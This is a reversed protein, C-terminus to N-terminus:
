RFRTKKARNENAYHSIFICISCIMFITFLWYHHGNLLTIISFIFMAINFLLKKCRHWRDMKGYEKFYVHIALYDDVMIPLIAFLIITATNLDNTSILFEATFVILVYYGVQNFYYMDYYNARTGTVDGLRTRDVQRPKLPLIGYIITGINGNYLTYFAFKLISWALIVATIRVSFHGILKDNNLWEETSGPLYINLVYNLIAYLGCYIGISIVILIFFYVINDITPNNEKLRKHVSNLCVFFVIATLFISLYIGRKYVLQSSEIRNGNSHFDGLPFIDNHLLLFDAFRILYYSLYIFAVLLVCSILTFVLYKFWIYRDRNYGGPGSIM